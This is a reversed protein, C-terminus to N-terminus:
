VWFSRVEIGPSKLFKDQLRVCIKGCVSYMYGIYWNYILVHKVLLLWTECFRMMLINLSEIQKLLTKLAPLKILLFAGTHLLSYQYSFGCFWAPMAQQDCVDFVQFHVSSQVHLTACCWCLIWAPHVHHICSSVSYASTSLMNHAHSKWWCSYNNPYNLIM